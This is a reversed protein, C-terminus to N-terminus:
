LPVMPLSPCSPVMKRGKHVFNDSSEGLEIEQLTVHHM